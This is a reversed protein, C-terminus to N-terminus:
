KTRELLGRLTAATPHTAPFSFRVCEKVAEREADTLYKGNACLMRMEGHERICVNMTRVAEDLARRLSRIEAAAELVTDRAASMLAYGSAEELRDVVDAM